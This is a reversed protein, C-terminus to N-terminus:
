RPGNFNEERRREPNENQGKGVRIKPSFTDIVLKARWVLNGPWFDNAYNCAFQLSMKATYKQTSFALQPVRVLYNSQFYTEEKRIRM